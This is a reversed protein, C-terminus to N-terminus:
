PGTARACSEAAAKDEALEDTRHKVLALLLLDLHWSYLQRLPTETMMPTRFGEHRPAEVLREGTLRHLADRVPTVSANLEESLLAPELRDGPATSARACGSASRRMSGSSPAPPDDALARMCGGTRRPWDQGAVFEAVCDEQDPRLADTAAFASPFTGSSSCPLANARTIASIPAISSTDSWRRSSPVPLQARDRASLRAVPERLAQALGPLLQRDRRAPGRQERNGGAGHLTSGLFLLASGPELEVAFEGAPLEPISRAQAMAEAALRGDSRERAHLAHVAVDRQGSIGDRRDAGRWM